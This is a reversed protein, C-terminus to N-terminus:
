DSLATIFSFILSAQPDLAVLFAIKLDSARDSGTAQIVEIPRAHFYANVILGIPWSRRRAQIRAAPTRGSSMPM